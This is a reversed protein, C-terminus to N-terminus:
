TRHTYILYSASSRRETTRCRRLHIMWADTDWWIGHVASLSPEPATINGWFARKGARQSYRANPLAGTQVDTHPRNSLSDLWLKRCSNSYPMARELFGGALTKQISVCSVVVSTYCSFTFRDLSELLLSEVFLYCKPKCVDSFYPWALGLRHKELLKAGNSVFRRAQGWLVLVVEDPVCVPFIRCAESRFPM